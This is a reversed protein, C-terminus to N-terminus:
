VERQEKYIWTWALKLCVASLVTVITETMDGLFWVITDATITELPRLTDTYRGALQIPETHQYSPRQHRDEPYWLPRAAGRTVAPTGSVPIWNQSVASAGGPILRRQAAPGAGHRALHWGSGVRGASAAPSRVPRVSPARAGIECRSRIRRGRPTVTLM